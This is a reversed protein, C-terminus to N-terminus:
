TDQTRFWLLGPLTRHLVTRVSPHCLFSHTFGTALVSLHLLPLAPSAQEAGCPKKLRISSSSASHVQKGQVSFDRRLDRHQPGSGRCTSARTPSTMLTADRRHTFNTNGSSFLTNEEWQTPVPPASEAFWSTPDTLVKVDAKLLELVTLPFRNNSLGHWRCQWM